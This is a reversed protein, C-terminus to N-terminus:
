LLQMTDRMLRTPVACFASQQEVVWVLWQTPLFEELGKLELIM